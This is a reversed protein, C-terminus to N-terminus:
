VGIGYIQANEKADLVARMIYFDEPTTIKINENPGEILHMKKGYNAMLSCSDIFNDKGENLAKRHNEIIENLYFSQPARALRTKKREPVKIINDKDDVILVTEIVKVSTIASGYKKVSDINNKIVDENILPRVGDHILVISDQNDKEINKEAVCLGNYISLQGTSGGPVINHVKTLRYKVILKQAYDIWGKVCVLEIADILHSKQFTELTHVLIPKGHIKLFQKPIERSHMRSGVGGAFIVAINM